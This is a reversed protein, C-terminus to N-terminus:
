IWEAPASRKVFALREKAQEPKLAHLIIAGDFGCRRLSALYYPYDLKGLGAALHGADGDHDLDKAHALALDDGLLEFAQDIMARMKGLTGKPFINAGDMVIKLAPSRIEDLLKRGKQVTSVCNNIEPEVGLTIGAAEAARVASEVQVLLDAWADPKENDPSNRWMSEANRSGTCLTVIPCGLRKAFGILRKLDGDGARRVAPDRDIMNYTGSIASMQLGRSAFAKKVSAIEADTLDKPFTGLGASVFDFQVGVAGSAVISDLVADLTAGPFEPSLMGLVAM